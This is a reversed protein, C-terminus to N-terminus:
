FRHALGVTLQTTDYTASDNLSKKGNSDGYSAYFNTRSSLMYTAGVSWV